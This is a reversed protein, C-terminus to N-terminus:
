QCDRLPPKWSVEVQPMSEAGRIGLERNEQARKRVAEPSVTAMSFGEDRIRGALYGHGRLMSEIFLRYKQIVRPRGLKREFRWMQKTAFIRVVLLISRMQNLLKQLRKVKKPTLEEMGLDDPNVRKIEITPENDSYDLIMIALDFPRERSVETATPGPQDPFKLTEYLYQSASTDPPSSPDIGFRRVAPLVEHLIRDRSKRLQREHRKFIQLLTPQYQKLNNAIADVAPYDLTELLSLLPWGTAVSCYSTRVKKCERSDPNLIRLARM